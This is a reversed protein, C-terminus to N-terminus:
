IKTKHYGENIKVIGNEISVEANARLNTYDPNEKIAKEIAEKIFYETDLNM